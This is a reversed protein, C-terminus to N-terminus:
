LRRPTPDAVFGAPRQNQGPRDIDGLDERAKEALGLLRTVVGPHKSALNRTEGLDAELDYLRASSTRATGGLPLYLKWKGSRVAQLQQIHYYYFAKYPSRVGPEGAMLPRIDYGDIIRDNPIEAGALRALTPLLDMM